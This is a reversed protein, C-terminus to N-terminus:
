SSRECWKGPQCRRLFDPGDTLMFEALSWPRPELLARRAPPILYVEARVVGAPGANVRVTERHYFDDEFADLRALEPASLDAYLLGETQAGAEAILGPYSLGRLRYRAYGHLVAPQGTRVWGTVAQYILPNQLTGYVFLRVM